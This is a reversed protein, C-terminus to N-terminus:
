LCEVGNIFHKLVPPNSRRMFDKLTEKRPIKYDGYEETLIEHYTDPIYTLMLPKFNKYEIIKNIPHIIKYMTYNTSRGLSLGYWSTEQSIKYVVSFDIRTVYNYLFQISYGCDLSGYETWFKFGNKILLAKLSEMKNEIDEYFFGIDIDYDYDIFDNERIAGLLTGCMLFYRIQLQTLISHVLKIANTFIDKYNQIEVVTM